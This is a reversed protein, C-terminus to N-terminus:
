IVVQFVPEGFTRGDGHGRDSEFGVGIARSVRVRTGVGLLERAFVRMPEDLAADPVIQRLLSRVGEGFRADVDGPLSRRWCGDQRGRYRTSPQLDDGDCSHGSWM